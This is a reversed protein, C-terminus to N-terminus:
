LKQAFGNLVAALEKPKGLMPLHGASITVEEAGLNHRMTQQLAVPFENDNSTVVYLKAIGELVEAGPELYVRPAEPQFSKVVRDALESSLDNCYGKRIAADAPKTGAMRIILPMILKQPFPLASVFSGGRQPIAASVAVFGKVRDKLEQAVRLGIVGGLSHAVIVVNEADLKKAQDVVATVYDDMGLTSDKADLPKPLEVAVSPFNLQSVVDAWAWSRLGAGAIFVFGTKASM